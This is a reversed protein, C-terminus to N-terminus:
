CCFVPCVVGVVVGFGVVAGVAFGVVVGVWVGIVDGLGVVLGVAVGGFASMSLNKIIGAMILENSIISIAIKYTLRRFLFSCSIVHM